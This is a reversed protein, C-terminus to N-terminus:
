GLGLDGMRQDEGNVADDVRYLFPEDGTGDPFSFFVLRGQYDNWSSVGPPKSLEVRSITPSSRSAWTGTATYTEGRPARAPEAPVNMVAAALKATMAGPVLMPAAVGTEEVLSSRSSVSALLTVM